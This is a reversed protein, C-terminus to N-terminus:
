QQQIKKYTFLAIVYYTSMGMLMVIPTTTLLTAEGDLSVMDYMYTDLIPNDSWHGIPNDDRDQKCAIITGHMMQSGCPLIVSAHLYEDGVEPTIEEDLDPFTLKNQDKDDYLIYEPM